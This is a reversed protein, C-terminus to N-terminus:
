VRKMGFIAMFADTVTFHLGLHQRALKRWHERKCGKRNWDRGSAECFKQAVTEIREIQATDTM